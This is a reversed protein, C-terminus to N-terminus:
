KENSRQGNINCAYENGDPMVLFYLAKHLRLSVVAYINEAIWYRTELMNETSNHQTLGFQKALKYITKRDDKHVAVNIRESKATPLINGLKM